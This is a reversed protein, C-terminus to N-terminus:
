ISFRHHKENVRRIEDVDCKPERDYTLLGNIEQEVDTLQTYCFGWLAESAYIADVLREYESVLQEGNAVTTYGWGNEDQAMAIGGCESLVIPEGSYKFGDVYIPRGNMSRNVLSDATSLVERFEEYQVADDPEGHMYNHIACIDTVTQEWGDNSEVLRTSDLSKVLHYLAQSYHQEKASNSISPTGWSENLPVWVVISPHSQDRRIIEAWEEAVRQVSKASFVPASANEEWVLFGLKDAWYLYRPDELKQHKRAGNFGMAKALEIDRRYDDDSPATILGERWYGQDLVLKQYYPRNNLYIMGNKAEIKRLGFYSEVLDVVEGTDGDVLEFTIDLLNPSEPSWLLLFQEHVGMRFVQNQGYDVQWRMAPAAWELSGKAISVDDKSVSYRLVDGVKAQSSEVYFEIFGRDIDSTMQVEEIHRRNVTELWVTQWIGSSRTYWIGTSEAKWFQKGRPLTEDELRDEVRVAIQQEVGEVLFPTIDASFPTEGGFHEVVMQGNVFVKAHYDVAGFHLLLEEEAGLQPKEFSKRYWFVDHQAKEGVGSLPAEYPFPVNIKRAFVGAPVDQEYWKEKLGLNEDDFAFDWEGNLNIWDNRRM